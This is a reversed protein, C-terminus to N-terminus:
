SISVFTCMETATAAGTAKLHLTKYFPIGAHCCSRSPCKYDLLRCERYVSKHYKVNFVLSLHSLLTCFVISHYILRYHFSSLVPHASLILSAHTLTNDNIHQTHMGTIRKTTNLEVRDKTEEQFFM